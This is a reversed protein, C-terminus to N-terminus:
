LSECSLRQVTADEETGGDGREEGRGGEEPSPHKTKPGEALCTPPRAVAMVMEVVKVVEMVRVEKGVVVGQEVVEVEEVVGVGEAAKEERGEEM